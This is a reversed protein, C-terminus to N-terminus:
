VGLNLQIKSAIPPPPTPSKGRLESCTHWATLAMTYSVSRHCCAHPVLCPGRKTHYTHTQHLSFTM